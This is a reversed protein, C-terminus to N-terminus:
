RVCLVNEKVTKDNYSVIGYEVNIDWARVPSNIQTTSSWFNGSSVNSFFEKNFSPKYRKEDNLSQLEKVNPLRWDAKGGLELASAYTLAEEWTMLAASQIKQWILGTLNDIITGDGNTNFFVELGFSGYGSLSAGSLIPHMFDGYVDRDYCLVSHAGTTWLEYIFPYYGTLTANLVDVGARHM